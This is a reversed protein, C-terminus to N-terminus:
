ALPVVALRGAPEFGAARRAAGFASGRGGFVDALAVGGPFGRRESVAARVRAGAAGARGPLSRLSASSRSRLGAAARVPRRSSS